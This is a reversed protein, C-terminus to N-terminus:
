GRPTLQSAPAGHGELEEADLGAAGHLLRADESGLRPRPKEATAACM